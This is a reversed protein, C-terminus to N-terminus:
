VTPMMNEPTASKSEGDEAAQSVGFISEVNRMARAANQTEAKAIANAVVEAMKASSTIGQAFPHQGLLYPLSLCFLRESSHCSSLPHYRGDVAIGRKVGSEASDSADQIVGTRRLSPFPFDEAGLVKQGTAEIFAPFHLRASGITVTAGHDISTTNIRAKDGLAVINLKDCQRLALLRRMSEHPITAYSDVFVVKFYESFREYDDDNLHPVILAIVEHMRLIAYRWAVTVSARMNDAAEKLNSRAWDFPDTRSRQEFYAACFAELTVNALSITAAYQPDDAMLERRFLEFAEDLLRDSPACDILQQIAESSCISLPLYPIPHFFDAEPLLGKRSFMTISFAETGANPVYCIDGAVAPLFEGHSSALFVAADISSLSTGRIGVACNSIRALASAPYPSIFYGARIEPEEPWQHGTALVAYDFEVKELKSRSATVTLEMGAKVLRVDSVTTSTRVAIEIGSSRGQAVLTAFQDALYDGIILRPFFARESVASRDIGYSALQANSHDQLWDILNRPLPPIEISAINALMM